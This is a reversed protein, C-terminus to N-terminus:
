RLWVILLGSNCHFKSFILKNWDYIIFSNKGVRCKTMLLNHLQKSSHFSSKMHATLKYCVVNLFGQHRDKLPPCKKQTNAATITVTRPVTIHDFTGKEASVWPKLIFIKNVNWLINATCSWTYGDIVIQVSTHSQLYPGFINPWKERHWYM